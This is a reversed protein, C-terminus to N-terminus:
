TATHKHHPARECYTCHMAQRPDHPGAHPTTHHSHHQITTTQNPSTGATFSCSNQSHAACCGKLVTTYAHSGTDGHRATKSHVCKKHHSQNYISSIRRLKPGAWSLFLISNRSRSSYLALCWPPKLQSSNRLRHSPTPGVSIMMWFSLPYTWMYVKTAITVIPM